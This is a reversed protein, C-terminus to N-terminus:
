IHKIIIINKLSKLLISMQSQIMDQIDELLLKVDLNITGVKEIFDTVDRLARADAKRQPNNEKKILIDDMEFMEIMIYDSIFDPRKDINDPM